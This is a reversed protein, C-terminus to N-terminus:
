MLNFKGKYFWYSEEIIEPTDADLVYLIERCFELPANGNATVINEDKVANNNIYNAEGMYKEGAYQKLYDLGNSTHKVHDLFGHKGLFVSANCIGAVLKDEKIAKEVLPVLQEAEPTFWSMGGVLVLGAYDEPLTNIDYDPLVRFGGISMVPEKTVSMTKVTYNVPSGPPKVGINLCTSIYAGEWDAFQNLLVFLVEKKM